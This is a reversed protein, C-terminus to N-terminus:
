NRCGIRHIVGSIWQIRLRGLVTSGWLQRFLFHGGAKKMWWHVHLEYEKCSKSACSSFSSSGMSTSGLIAIVVALVSRTPTPPLNVVLPSLLQAPVFLVELACHALLTLTTSSALPTLLRAASAAALRTLLSHLVAVAVIVCFSSRVELTVGKGGRRRVRVCCVCLVRKCRSRRRRSVDTFDGEGTHLHQVFPSSSGLLCCCFEVEAGVFKPHDIWGTM